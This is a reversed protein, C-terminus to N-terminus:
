TRHTAEIVTLPLVGADSEFQAVFRILGSGRTVCPLEFSQGGSLRRPALTWNPSTSFGGDGPVSGLQLNDVALDGVNRLVLVQEPLSAVMRQEVTAVLEARREQKAGTVTQVIAGRKTTAMLAPGDSLQNGSGSIARGQSNAVATQYRRIYFRAALTGGVAGSVLGGIIAGILETVM